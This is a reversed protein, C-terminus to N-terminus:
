KDADPEQVCRRPVATGTVNEQGNYSVDQRATAKESRCLEGGLGAFRACRREKAPPLPCATSRGGLKGLPSARPNKDLKRDRTELRWGDCGIISHCRTASSKWFMAVEEADEMGLAVIS